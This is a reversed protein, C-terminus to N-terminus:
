VQDMRALSPVLYGSYDQSSQQCPWKGSFIQSHFFGGYLSLHSWLLLEMFTICCTINPFHYALFILNNCSKWIFWLSLIAAAIAADKAQSSHATLCVKLLSLASSLDLANGLRDGILGVGFQWLM